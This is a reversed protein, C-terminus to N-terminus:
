PNVAGITGGNTVTLFKVWKVTGPYCNTPTPANTDIQWVWNTVQPFAFNLNSSSLNRLLLNVEPVIPNTVYFMVAGANTDTSLLQWTQAKSFDFMVSSQNTLWVMGTATWYNTTTVTTNTGPPGAPGAPGVPGNTLHLGFIYNTMDYYSVYWAQAGSVCLLTLAILCFLKKM